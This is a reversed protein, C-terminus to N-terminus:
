HLNITSGCPSNEELFVRKKTLAATSREVEKPHTEPKAIKRQPLAGLNLFILLITIITKCFLFVDLSNSFAIWIPRGGLITRNNGL